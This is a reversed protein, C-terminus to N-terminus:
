LQSPLARKFSGDADVVFYFYKFQTSKPDDYEWPKENKSAPNLLRSSYARVVYRSGDSNGMRWNTGYFSEFFSELKDPKLEVGKLWLETSEPIEGELWDAPVKCYILCRYSAPAVMGSPMMLGDAVIMLLIHSM